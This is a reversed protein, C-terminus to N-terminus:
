TFMGNRGLYNDVIWVSANLIIILQEEKKIREKKGKWFKM